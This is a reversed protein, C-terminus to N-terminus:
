YKFNLPVYCNGASGYTVWGSNYYVGSNVAAANTTTLSPLTTNGYWQDGGNTEMSVIYYATNAALTVPSSLTVYKYGLSDATGTGMNISASGLQTGGTTYIALTHTGSNGSVFYRGLEKVTINSAGVTIKMGVYNGYNNRLQSGTTLSSVFSTNSGAAPVFKVADAIVQGNANDTLKVYGSTGAAFNFTGLKVWTDGNIQQNVQVTQNGGNYYITYPANTARNTYATWRAYVDYNGATAIDPTFNAYNSGSGAVIYHVSNNYGQGTYRTWPGTFTCAGNDNDILRTTGLVSKVADLYSRDGNLKPCIAGGESFENWSYMLVANTEASATNAANWDIASQLQGSLESQTPFQVWSNSSYSAYAYPPNCQIRPRPDWGATVWPIVKKGTNKWADWNSRESSAMSSYSQGNSGTSVYSSIADAGIQNAFAVVGGTSFDLAVVYPNPIGAASCKSRLRTIQAPDVLSPYNFCYILPRGGLVKQYNAEQFRAVLWDEDSSYLPHTFLITCWNIDYKHTSSLYLDRPIYMNRTDDTELASYWCFAWYNIGAEKAYAIEQDMKDQTTCRMTCSDATPETAYFPLRFHWGNPGLAREEELGVPSLDGVQGDWRIAGVISDNPNSAEAKFPQILLVASMTSVFLVLVMAACLFKSLSKKSNRLM